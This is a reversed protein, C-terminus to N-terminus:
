SNADSMIVSPKRVASTWMNRGFRINPGISTNKRSTLPTFPTSILSPTNKKTVSTYSRLHSLGDLMTYETLKNLKEWDNDLRFAEGTINEIYIKSNKTLSRPKRELKWHFLDYFEDYLLYGRSTEPTKRDWVTDKLGILYQEVLKQAGTQDQTYRNAWHNIKDTSSLGPPLKLQTAM